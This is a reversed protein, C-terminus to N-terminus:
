EDTFEGAAVIVFRHGYVIPPRPLNARQRILEELEEKNRPEKDPLSMRLSRRLSPWRAQDFREFLLAQQHPGFGSEGKGSLVAECYLTSSKSLTDSWQKGFSPEM